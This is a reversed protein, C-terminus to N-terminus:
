IIKYIMIHKYLPIKFCLGGTATIEGQANSVLM